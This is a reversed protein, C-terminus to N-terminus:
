GCSKTAAEVITNVKVSPLLASFHEVMERMKPNDAGYLEAHGIAYNKIRAEWSNPYPAGDPRSFRHLWRLFPLCVAKKGAKCFKEHIYCEEGGFQRFGSNFGLWADRRCAFMGLGHAPIEFPEGNEDLGRKDTAWIGLMGERWVMDMHTAGIEMNDYLMPGHLLNGEDKGSDFFEVLKQLVGAPFMVHCDVCLVALTNAMRFIRDRLATGTADTVPVYRIPCAKVWNTLEKVAKGHKSEPSNDLILFEVDKLIEPHHLQISQITFYVGHFDDFTLMGITLKRTSIQKLRCALMSDAREIVEIVGAAIMEKTFQVVGPASPCKGLVADHFLITAGESLHCQLNDFDGKVGAYTHDGDIFAFDYTQEHPFIKSDGTVMSVDKLFELCRPDHAPARDITTFPTEPNAGRIICTSGGHRSGIELMAREAKAAYKWLLAAEAINLRVIGRNAIGSSFLWAMDAFDSM